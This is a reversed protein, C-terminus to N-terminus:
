RPKTMAADFNLGNAPNANAKLIGALKANGKIRDALTIKNILEYYKRTPVAMQRANIVYNALDGLGFENLLFTGAIQHDTLPIGNHKFFELMQLTENDDSSTDMLERQLYDQVTMESM